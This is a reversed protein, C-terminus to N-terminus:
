KWCIHCATPHHIHFWSIGMWGPVDVVNVMGQVEHCIGPMPFSSIKMIFKLPFIMSIGEPDRQIRQKEFLYGPQHSVGSLLIYHKQGQTPGFSLQTPKCTWCSSNITVIVIQNTTEAGRQFFILLDTPIILFEWYRHSFLGFIAVLGGVLNAISLPRFSNTSDAMSHGNSEGAVHTQQRPFSIMFSTLSHSISSSDNLFPCEPREHIKLFTIMPSLGFLISM